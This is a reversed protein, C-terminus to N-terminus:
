MRRRSGEEDGEHRTESAVSYEAIMMWSVFWSAVFIGTVLWDM